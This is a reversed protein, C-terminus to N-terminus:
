GAHGAHQHIKNQRVDQVARRRIRFVALKWRSDARRTAPIQLLRDFKRGSPLSLMSRIVGRDVTRRSRNIELDFRAGAINSISALDIQLLVNDRELLVSLELFHDVLEPRQLLFHDDSSRLLLTRLSLDGIM